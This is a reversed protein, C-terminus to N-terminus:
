SILLTIVTNVNYGDKEITATVSVYLQVKEAIYQLEYSNIKWDTIKCDSHESLFRKVNSQINEYNFKESEWDIDYEYYFLYKINGFEDCYCELKNKTPIGNSYQGFKIMYDKVEINSDNSIYFGNVTEGYVFNAGNSQKGSVMRYTSSSYEYDNLIEADIYKSIYERVHKVVNEETLTDYPYQALSLEKNKNVIHFSNSDRFKVYQTNKDKSLYILRDELHLYDETEVHDAFIDLKGIKITADLPVDNKITTSSFLNFRTTKSNLIGYVDSVKKVDMPVFIYTEYIDTSGETHCGDNTTLEGGFELHTGVTDTFPSNTDNPKYIVEERNCISNCSSLITVFFLLLTSIFLNKM